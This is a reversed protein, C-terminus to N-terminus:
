PTFTWGTNNGGNKCGSCPLSTTGANKGDTVKLFDMTKKGRADLIWQKGPLQSRLALPASKGGQLTLTGKVTLVAGPQLSLTDGVSIKKTLSQFTPSGFINQRKGELVTTGMGADFIGRGFFLHGEVVLTPPPRLSGSLLFLSQRVRLTGSTQGRFAGGAMVLTGVDQTGRGSTLFEGKQIRLSGDVRVTGEARVTGARVNLAAGTITSLSAMALVSLTGGSVTISRQVRTGNAIVFKEGADGPDFVVNDFYRTTLTIVDAHGDPKGAIVWAGSGGLGTVNFTEVQVTEDGRMRFEGANRMTGVSVNLGRTEFTGWDIALKKKVTLDAGTLVFVASVSKKSANILINDYPRRGDVPCTVATVSPFSVFEWTGGAGWEKAEVREKCQMRIMGYNALRGNVTLNKGNLTLWAGAQITLSNISRNSDLVPQYMGVDIIVDSNEGPINNQYWNNSNKWDSSVGGLWKAGMPGSTALLQLGLRVSVLPALAAFLTLLLVLGFKEGQTIVNGTPREKRASATRSRRMM